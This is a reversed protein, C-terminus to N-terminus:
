RSFPPFINRYLPTRKGSADMGKAYDVIFDACAERSRRISNDFNEYSWHYNTTAEVPLSLVEVPDPLHEKNGVLALMEHRNIDHAFIEVDHRSTTGAYLMILNNLAELLNTPATVQKHDVIRSVWVENIHDHIKHVAGFCFSDILAGEIHTQGDLDVPTLVYPLASSACLVPMTIAGVDHAKKPHNSYIDSAHTKLNYSNIYINTDEKALDALKFQQLLEYEPGYWIKNLGPVESKYILSMLMRVAPNPALVSNLMLYAFDGPNWSSPKLYNDLIQQYAKAIEGPVIWNKYNQPNLMFKMGAAIQEPIDPTFTKPCPFMEYMNDERFFGRVMDEVQSARSTKGKADCLHYLCALWGGVCGAVWTPFEIPRGKAGKKKEADNWDQLALLFGISIGVAPGGGGLALARSPKRPHLKLHTAIAADHDEKSLWKAM